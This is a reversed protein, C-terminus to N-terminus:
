FDLHSIRNAVLRAYDADEQAAQRVSPITSAQLEKARTAMRLAINEAAKAQNEDEAIVKKLDLILTSINKFPGHYEGPEWGGPDSIEGRHCVTPELKLLAYFYNGTSVEYEVVAYPTSDSGNPGKWYVNIDGYVFEDTEDETVAEWKPFCHTTSYGMLTLSAFDPNLAMNLEFTLKKTDM